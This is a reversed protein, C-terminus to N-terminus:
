RIEVQYHTGTEVIQKFDRLAVQCWEADQPDQPTTPIFVVLPETNGLATAYTVLNEAQHPVDEPDDPDFAHAFQTGQPAWQAEPYRVHAGRTITITSM